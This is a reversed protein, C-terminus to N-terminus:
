EKHHGHHMNMPPSPMQRKSPAASTKETAARDSMPMKMGAPMEMTHRRDPAASEQAPTSSGMDMGHMGGESADSAVAANAARWLQDPSSIDVSAAHYTQFTSQYIAVPVPAHPNAADPGPQSHALSASALWVSTLCWAAVAQPTFISHM